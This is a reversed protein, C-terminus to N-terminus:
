FIDLFFVSSTSLSNNLQLFDIVFKAFITELVLIIMSLQLDLWIGFIVVFLAKLMKFSVLFDIIYM